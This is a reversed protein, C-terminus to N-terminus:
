IALTDHFLLFCIKQKTYDLLCKQMAFKADKTKIKIQEEFM